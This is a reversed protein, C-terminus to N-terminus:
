YNATSPLQSRITIFETSVGRYTTEALLRLDKLGLTDLGSSMVMRMQTRDGTHETSSLWEQTEGAASTM